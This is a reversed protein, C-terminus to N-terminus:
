EATMAAAAMKLRLAVAMPHESGIVRREIELAREYERRAKEPQGLKVLNDGEHEHKLSEMLAHVATRHPTKKWYGGYQRYYNPTEDHLQLSRQYEAAALDPKGLKMLKDANREHEDAEKVKMMQNYQRHFDVVVPEDRGIWEDELQLAKQYERAALDPKGLKMLQDANREHEVSRQVAWTYRERPISLHPPPVVTTTATRSNGGCAGRNSIVDKNNTSSITASM